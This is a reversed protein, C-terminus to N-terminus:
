MYKLLEDYCDSDKRVIQVYVYEVENGFEDVEVRMNKVDGFIDDSYEFTGMQKKTLKGAVEYVLNKKKPTVDVIENIQSQSNVSEIEKQSSQSSNHELDPKNRPSTQPSENKKSSSDQSSSHSSTNKSSSNSSSNNSSNSSSDENTQNHISKNQTGSQISKNDVSSHPTEIKKPLNQPTSDISLSEVISSHSQNKISEKNSPSQNPTSNKITPSRVSHTSNSSQEEMDQTVNSKVPTVIPLSIGSKNSPNSKSQIAPTKRSTNHHSPSDMDVDIIEQSENIKSTSNHKNTSNQSPSSKQSVLPSNQTITNRNSSRVEPSTVPSSEIDKLNSKSSTIESIILSSTENSPKQKPTSKVSRRIDEIKPSSKNNKSSSENQSTLSQVSPSTQSQQGSRNRDLEDGTTNGSKNPSSKSPSSKNPSSKDKPPIVIVKPIIPNSHNSHNSRTEQSPNNVVVINNTGSHNSRHVPSEDITQNSKVPSSKGSSSMSVMEISSSNSRLGDDRKKPSQEEDQLTITMIEVKSKMIEPLKVCEIEMFYTNTLFKDDEVDTSFTKGKYYNFILLMIKHLYNFEERHIIRRFFLILDQQIKTDIRNEFILNYEQGSLNNFMNTVKMFLYLSALTEYEQDDKNISDLPMAYTEDIYKDFDQAPEEGEYTIRFKILEQYTLLFDDFNKEPQLETFWNIILHESNLQDLDQSFITDALKVLLEVDPYTFSIPQTREKEMDLAESDELEPFDLYLILDFLYRRNQIVQSKFLDPDTSQLENKPYLFNLHNKQYLVQLFQSLNKNMYRTSKSLFFRYIFMSFKASLDVDISNSEPDFNEQFHLQLLFGLFKSFITNVVPSGVINQNYDIRIQIQEELFNPILTKNKEPTWDQACLTKIIMFIDVTRKFDRQATQKDQTEPNQALNFYYTRLQDLLMTKAISRFSKFIVILHTYNTQFLGLFKTYRASLKMQVKQMIENMKLSLTAQLKQQIQDFKWDVKMTKSDFQANKLHAFWYGAMISRLQLEADGLDLEDEQDLLETSFTEVCTSSFLQVVSQMYVESDATIYQEDLKAPDFNLFSTMAQSMLIEKSAKDNSLSTIDQHTLTMSMASELISSLHELIESDQALFTTVLPQETKASHIAAPALCLFFLSFLLTFNNSM